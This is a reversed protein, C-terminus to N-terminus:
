NSTGLSGQNATGADYEIGGGLTLNRSGQLNGDATVDGDSVTLGGRVQLPGPAASTRNNYAAVRGVRALELIGDPLLSKM